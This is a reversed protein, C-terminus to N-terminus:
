PKIQQTPVFNKGEDGPIDCLHSLYNLKVTRNIHRQCRSNENETEGKEYQM